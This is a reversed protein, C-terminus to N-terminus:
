LNQTRFYLRNWVLLFLSLAGEYLQNLKENGLLVDVQQLTKAIEEADSQLRKGRRVEETKFFICPNRM